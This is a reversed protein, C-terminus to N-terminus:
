KILVPALRKERISKHVCLFNIEGMKVKEDELCTHVPVGTISAYLKGNKGRVGVLWNKVYNPPNLAWKLFERSYDFRFSCDDDEVYNETLM